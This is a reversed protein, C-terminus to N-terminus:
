PAVEVFSISQKNLTEPRFILRFPVSTQQFVDLPSQPPLWPPDWAKHGGYPRASRWTKQLCCGILFENKEFSTKPLKLSCLPSGSPLLQM